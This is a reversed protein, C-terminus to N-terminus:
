KILNDSNFEKNLNDQKMKLNLEETRYDIYEVIKLLNRKMDSPTFDKLKREYHSFDNGIKFTNNISKFLPAILELQGKIEEYKTKSSVILENDGKNYFEYILGGITKELIMEHYKEPLLRKLFDKVLIELAKRFIMGSSKQFGLEHIIEAEQFIEYFNKSLSDITEKRIIEYPNDQKIQTLWSSIWKIFANWDRSSTRQSRGNSDVFDATYGEHTKKLISQISKDYAFDFDLSDVDEKLTMPVGLEAVIKAIEIKERQNFKM